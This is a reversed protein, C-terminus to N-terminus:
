GTCESPGDSCLENFIKSFIDSFTATSTTLSERFNEPCGYIRRMARNDKRYSLKKRFKLIEIFYTFVLCDSDLTSSSTDTVTMTVWNLTLVAILM